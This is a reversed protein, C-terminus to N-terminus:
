AAGREKRYQSPQRSLNHFIRCLNPEIDDAQLQIDQYVLREGGDCLHESVQFVSLCAPQGNMQFPMRDWTFTLSKELM